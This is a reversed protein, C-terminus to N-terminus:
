RPGGPALLLRLILEPIQEITPTAGDSAWHQVLALDARGALLTMTQM